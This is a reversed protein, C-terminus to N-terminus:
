YNVLNNGYLETLGPAVNSKAKRVKGQGYFVDRTLQLRMARLLNVIFVLNRVLVTDFRARGAKALTAGLAGVDVTKIQRGDLVNANDPQQTAGFGELDASGEALYHLVTNDHSQLHKDTDLTSLLEHRVIHEDAIRKADIGVIANLGATQVDAPIVSSAYNATTRDRTSKWFWDLAHRALWSTILALNECDVDNTSILVGAFSTKNKKILDGLNKSATRYDIHGNIVTYRAITKALRELDPNGVAVNPIFPAPPINVSQAALQFEVLLEVLGIIASTRLSESAVHGAGPGMENYFQEECYVEGFVANGYLEDALFRPRAMGDLPVTGLLMGKLHHNTSPTSLEMYPDVLLAVLMDKASRIRNGGSDDCLEKIIKKVNKDDGSGGYFLGIIMRDFTYSYNLLSAFPIERMLAHVNIPVIDLDLVNQVVIDGRDKKNRGDHLYDVFEDIKEERMSSETQRITDEVDFAISRVSYTKQLQGAAPKKYLSIDWQGAHGAAVAAAAAAGDVTVLTNHLDARALVGSNGTQVAYAGGAYPTSCHYSTLIGRLHKTGHLWRVASVFRELYLSANTNDVTAQSGVVANYAQLIDAFGPVNELTQKAEGVLLGRTAYMLKFKPDGFPHIPFMAVEDAPAAANRMLALVSSLPAFPSEGNQTSYDRIFGNYTELYKPDDGVERMTQDISQILVGCGRTIADIIGSFRGKNKGSDEARAVLTYPWPNLPNILAGAAALANPVQKNPRTMDVTGRAIVSRILECRRVLEGILRKFAPLNARLREKMHIPLDAVNESLYFPTTAGTAKTSVLTRLTVALSMFLVHDADPDARQGFYPYNGINPAITDAPPASKGGLGDYGNTIGTGGIPGYRAYVLTSKDASGSSLSTADPASDDMTAIDDGNVTFKAPGSRGEAPVGYAAKKLDDILRQTAYPGSRAYLTLVALMRVRDKRDSTNRDGMNQSFPNASLANGFSAFNDGFAANWAAEYIPAPHAGAPLPTLDGTVAIATASLKNKAIALRLMDAAIQPVPAGTRGGSGPGKLYDSNKDTMAWGIMDALADIQDAPLGGALTQAQSIPVNVTAGFKVQIAPICDPYTYNIPDNVAQSFAGNAFKDVLGSYIKRTNVDYFSQLYKAVIQNFDFLLSRNQTYEAMWTYLQKFRAAFRTDFVRKDPPGGVILEEYPDTRHKQLMAKANGATAVSSGMLGSNAKTADYYVMESFLDAYSVRTAAAAVAAGGAPEKCEYTLKDWTNGIGRSIKELSVYEDVKTPNQPDRGVIIKEMLQEQLWYFSGPTTKEVWRKILSEDVCSRLLNLFYMASAFLNRITEEIGGYTVVLRNDSISASVNVGDALAAVSELIERMVWKNDFLGRFYAHVKEWEDKKGTPARTAKYLADIDAPLLGAILASHAGHTNATVGLVEDLLAKNGASPEIWTCQVKLDGWVAASLAASSAAAAHKAVLKAIRMYDCIVMRTQFRKLMTHIGSLVNLSAVVTENFMVYKMGDVRSRLDAGRMLRAVAEFRKDAGALTKLSNAVSDITKDFQYLEGDGELLKDIACRFHRVIKQHQRTLAYRSKRPNVGLTNFSANDVMLRQSPTLRKPLDKDEDPLIAIEPDEMQDGYNTSIGSYEYGRSNKEFEKDYDSKAVIGYRRNIENVLDGIIGRVINGTHKSSSRQYILNVERIIKRVDDDTYAAPDVARLERFVLRILPAFTGDIDPVYSIKLDDTGNKSLPIDDYSAFNNPDDGDFLRRYWHVLLPLRLYLPTAEPIIEPTEVGGGLIMRVPALRMSTKLDVPRAFLAYTGTVTLIKAAAAKIMHVFYQDELDFSMVEHVHSSCHRMMVGYTRRFVENQNPASPPPGGNVSVGMHYNFGPHSRLGKGAAFAPDIKGDNQVVNEGAAKFGQAFASARLYNVVGRYMNAPSMMDNKAISDRGVSRGFHIFVSFLNKLATMRMLLTKVKEYADKGKSPHQIIFPSGVGPATGISEYYHKDPGGVNIGSDTPMAGAAPLGTPFHEFVGALMNGTGKGPWDAIVEIDALITDIDKVSTPSALMSDTFTRMCQDMSEVVAWFGRRAAWQDDLIAQAAKRDEDDEAKNARGPAITALHDRLATYERQRKSLIEVISKANLDTQDKGYTATDAAVAELNKRILAARANYIFATIADSIGRAPQYAVSMGDTPHAGGYMVEGGYAGTVEADGTDVRSGVNAPVDDGGVVTASDNDTDGHNEEGAGFMMAAPNFLTTFLPWTQVSSPSFSGFSGGQKVEVAGFKTTIEDSYKEIVGVVGTLSDKVDRLYQAGAAYDPLALLGDIARVLMNLNGMFEDKISKSMADNYYGILAYYVYKQRLLNQNVRNLLDSFDRFSETPNIEKGVHTSLANLAAVFGNFRENVARTFVQLVMDRLGDQAAQRRQIDSVPYGNDDYRGYENDFSPENAGGHIEGDEGGYMSGFPGSVEGKGTKELLSVIAEHDEFRDLIAKVASYADVSDTKSKLMGGLLLERMKQLTDAAKFEAISIGILGLAKNIHQAMIANIAVGRRLNLELMSIDNDSPNTKRLREIQGSIDGSRAAARALSAATQELNGAQMLGSLMTLQRKVERQLQEMLAIQGKIKSGAPLNDVANVSSTLEKLQDGIWSDLVALNQIIARVDNYVTLFESHMGSRFSALVEAVKACLEAAGLSTDIVDGYLENIRGALKRCRAEVGAASPNKLSTMYSVLQEGPTTGTLVAGDSKAMDLVEKIFTEKVASTDSGEYRDMAGTRIFGGCGCGGAFAAANAGEFGGRKKVRRIAAGIYAAGGDEVGAAVNRSLKTNVAAIADAADIGSAVLGVVVDFAEDAKIVAKKGITMFQELKAKAAALKEPTSTGSGM